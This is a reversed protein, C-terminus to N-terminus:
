PKQPRFPFMIRFGSAAPKQMICYDSGALWGGWSVAEFLWGLWSGWSGWGGRGVQEVDENKFADKYTGRLKQIRNLMMAYEKQAWPNGKCALAYMERCYLQTFFLSIHFLPFFLPVLTSNDAM